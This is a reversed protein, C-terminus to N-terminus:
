TRLAHALGNANSWSSSRGWLALHFIVPTIKQEKAL